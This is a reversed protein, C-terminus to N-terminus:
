APELACVEPGNVPGTEFRVMGLLSGMGHPNANRTGKKM